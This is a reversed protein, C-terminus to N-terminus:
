NSTFSLTRRTNDCCSAPIRKVIQVDFDSDTTLNVFTTSDVSTISDVSTLDVSTSDVSTTSNVFTISDVSTSRLNDLRRVNNLRRFNDLRCVYLRRVNDLKRVHTTRSHVNFRSSCSLNTTARTSGPPSVFSRQCCLLEVPARSSRLRTGTQEEVWHVQTTDVTPGNHSNM